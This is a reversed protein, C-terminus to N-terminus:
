LYVLSCLPGFSLFIFCVVLTCFIFVGFDDVVICIFLLVLYRTGPVGFLRVDSEGPGGCKILIVLDVPIALILLNEPIMLNM